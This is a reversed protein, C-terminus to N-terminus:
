DTEFQRLASMLGFLLFNSRKITEANAGIRILSYFGHQSQKDKISSLSEKSANGVNGCLTDIFTAHPDPSKDPAPSPTYSEGLVIQLTLTEDDKANALGALATKLVALTNETKLSLVPKSIKLQKAVNVKPRESVEAFEIQGHATFASKLPKVYRRQTGAYYRVKSGTARIEWVI